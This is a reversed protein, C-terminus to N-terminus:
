SDKKEQGINAAIKNLVDSGAALQLQGMGSARLNRFLCPFRGTMEVRKHKMNTMLEVLNEFYKYRMLVVESVEM